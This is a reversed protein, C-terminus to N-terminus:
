TIKEKEKPICDFVTHIIGSPMFEGKDKVYLKNIVM